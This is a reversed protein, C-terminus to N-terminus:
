LYNNKLRAQRAVYKGLIDFEVNVQDGQKVQKINTHDFTYPIIGVMFANESVNFVTLSIGDIAISGKEIILDSFEAPIEFSYEFSGGVNVVSTCTAVADIHGQVIHGDLRENVKMGRELNVMTGTEWSNMNTKLLTEPIATVRHCINNSEEVTLCVGNHSVSQDTKLEASMPSGIWFTKNSGDTEVRQVVGVQEIIGTFM